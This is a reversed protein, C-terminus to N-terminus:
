RHMQRMGEWVGGSGSDLGWQVALEELCPGCVTIVGPGLGSFEVRLLKIYISDLQM